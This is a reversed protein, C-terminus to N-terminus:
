CQQDPLPVLLTNPFVRVPSVPCNNWQPYIGKFCSEPSLSVCYQDHKPAYGCYYTTQGPPTHETILLNGANEAARYLELDLLDAEQCLDLDTKTPDPSTASPTAATATDSLVLAAGTMNAAFLLIMLGAMPSKIMTALGGIVSIGTLIALIIITPSM